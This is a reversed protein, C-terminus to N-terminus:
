LYLRYCLFLHFRQYMPNMLCMQNQPYMQYNQCRLYNQGRHHSPDEQIPRCKQCNLDLHTMQYMRNQLYMPYYQFM